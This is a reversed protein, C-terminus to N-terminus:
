LRVVGKSQVISYSLSIHQTPQCTVVTAIRYHTSSYDTYQKAQQGLNQTHLSVSVSYESHTASVSLTGDILLASTWKYIMVSRIYVYWSIERCMQLSM